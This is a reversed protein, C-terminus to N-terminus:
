IKHSSSAQSNEPLHNDLSKKQEKILFNTCTNQYEPSYALTNLLVDGKLSYRANKSHCEKLINIANNELISPIFFQKYDNISINEKELQNLLLYFSKINDRNIFPKILEPTINFALPLNLIYEAMEFRDNYLAHRLMFSDNHHIDVNHKQLYTILINIGEVNYYSIRYSVTEWIDEFRMGQSVLYDLPEFSLDSVNDFASRFLLNDKHRIDFGQLQLKKLTEVSNNHWFNNLLNPYNHDAMYGSSLLLDITQTRGSILAENLMKDFIELPLESKKIACELLDMREVRQLINFVSEYTNKHDYTKLCEDIMQVFEDLSCNKYFQDSTEFM